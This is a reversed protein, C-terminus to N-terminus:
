YLKTINRVFSCDTGFPYPDLRGFAIDAEERTDFEIVTTYMSSGRFSAYDTVLLKFM